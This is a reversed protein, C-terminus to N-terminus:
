LGKLRRAERIVTMRDEDGSGDMTKLELYNRWVVECAAWAEPWRPYEPQIGNVPSTIVHQQCIEASAKLDAIQTSYDAM